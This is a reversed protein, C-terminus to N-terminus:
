TSDGLRRVEEMLARNHPAPVGHRAAIRLLYGTIYKIETGRGARLDQLMSSYNAATARIV